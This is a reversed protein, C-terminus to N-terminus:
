TCCAVFTKYSIQTDLTEISAITRIRDEHISQETYSAPRIFILYKAIKKHRSVSYAIWFPAIM